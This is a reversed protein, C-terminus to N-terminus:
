VQYQGFPQRLVKKWFKATVLNWFLSAKNRAGGAAGSDRRDRETGDGTDKRPDSQPANPTGQPANHYTMSIKTPFM